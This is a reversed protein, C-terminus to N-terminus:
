QVTTLTLDYVLGSNAPVRSNGLISYAMGTPILLTRSGGSQMGTVGQDIGTIMQGDGIVFTFSGGDIRNGKHDTATDSYLWGTYTLSVSKGAVATAGAGVATDITGLQAPSAVASQLGNMTVDFVLGANPPVSGYGTTGYALNSPVLITRSGGAKMGTIGQDLGSITSGSGLALTFMNADLVTGKHDAATDSYLWGTYTVTAINGTAAAAGTGAVTDTTTLQAPSTVTTATPTSDSGNGGGGCASLGFVAIFFPVLLLKLKM